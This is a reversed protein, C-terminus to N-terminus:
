TLMPSKINPKGVLFESRCEPCMLKLTTTGM